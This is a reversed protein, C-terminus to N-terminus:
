EARGLCLQFWGREDSWLGATSFGAAKLMAAGQGPQYKYSSETHITEGQAFEVEMGLKGLAVRQPRLSELHMEVRSREGNWLARHAFADLQFEAELERNLRALLNLNFAATVGADDNYAAELAPQEKVQDLGLLLCDGPRLASRIRGLLQASEPPDFNGISSGIYLVLRRADEAAPTFRMEEFYDMERTTVTAQPLEASLRARAAELASASVDIPEYRVEGQLEIAASLLLRTKDATGSGLEVISLRSNEAARGIIDPAHLELIARETRTLYYEDLETIAEFLRSGAEDYFLWPPLRKPQVCMGERVTAAIKEILKEEVTQM